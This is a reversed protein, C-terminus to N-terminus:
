WCDLDDNAFRIELTWHKDLFNLKMGNWRRWEMRKFTTLNSTLSICEQNQTSIHRFKLNNSTGGLTACHQIYKSRQKFQRCNTTSPSPFGEFTPNTTSKWAWEQKLAPSFFWFFPLFFFSFLSLVSSFRIWCWAEHLKRIQRNSVNRREIWIVERCDVHNVMQDAVQLRFHVSVILVQCWWRHWYVKARASCCFQNLLRQLHMPLFM